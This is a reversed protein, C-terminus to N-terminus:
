DTGNRFFKEMVLAGAGRLRERGLDGTALVEVGRADHGLLERDLYHELSSALLSAFAGSEASLILGDPDISAMIPVLVRALDRAVRDLVNNIHPFSKAMDSLKEISAGQFGEHLAALESRIVEIGCYTELCDMKGCHCHRGEDRCHVHGIEGASGQGGAHLQGNFIMASSIGTGIAVLLLSNKNKAITQFWTHSLAVCRTDNEVSVMAPLSQSLMEILDVQHWPGFHVSRILKGQHIIGSFAGGYGSAPCGMQSSLKGDAKQLESIVEEKKWAQKALVQFGKLEGALNMAATSLGDANASFVMFWAGDPNISLTSRPKLPDAPLLIKKELLEACLNVVSNKRIGLTTALTQRRTPGHRHLYELILFRNDSRKQITISM